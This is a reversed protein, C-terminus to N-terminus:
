PHFKMRAKPTPDFWECKFLITRKITTSGKYELELIDTLVGYYDYDDANYNTVKICINNNNSSRSSSCSKTHFKFGNVNYGTYPKVSRRPGEALAKIFQNDIHVRACNLLIYIHAADLEEEILYRPGQERFGKRPYSEFPYMWHYHVPGALMAEYTLHVPLHEM